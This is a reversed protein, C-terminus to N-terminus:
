ELVELFKISCLAEKGNTVLVRTRMRLWILGAWVKWGQRELMWELIIM